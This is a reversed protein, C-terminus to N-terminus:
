TRYVKVDPDIGDLKTLDLSSKIFFQKVHKQGDIFKAIFEPHSCVLISSDHAHPDFMGQEYAMEEILTHLEDKVISTMQDSDTAYFVIFVAVVMRDETLKSQFDRYWNEM